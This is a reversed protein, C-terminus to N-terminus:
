SVVRCRMVTASSFWLFLHYSFNGLVEQAARGEIDHELFEEKFKIVQLYLYSNNKKKRFIWIFQM